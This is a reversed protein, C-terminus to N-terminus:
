FQDLDYTHFKFSTSKPLFFLCLSFSGSILIPLFKRFLLGFACFTCAFIVMHSTTLRFLTQMGIAVFLLTFLCEVLHFFFMKLSYESLPNSDLAYPSSLLLLCLFRFIHLLDFWMNRLSYICIIM